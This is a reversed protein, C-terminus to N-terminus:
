KRRQWHQAITEEHNGAPLGVPLWLEELGIQLFFTTRHSCAYEGEGAGAVAGAETGTETGTALLARTTGAALTGVTEEKDEETGGGELAGLV